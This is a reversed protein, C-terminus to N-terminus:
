SADDIRDSVASLSGKIAFSRDSTLENVFWNMERAEELSLIVLDLKARNELYWERLLKSRWDQIGKWFELDQSAPVIVVLDIDGAFETEKITSGFLGAYIIERPNAGFWARLWETSNDLVDSGVM